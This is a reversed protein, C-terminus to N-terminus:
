FMSASLALKKPRVTTSPSSVSIRCKSGIALTTASYALPLALASVLPKTTFQYSLAVSICACINLIMLAVCFAARADLAICSCARAIRSALRAFSVAAKSLAVRACLAATVRYLWACVSVNNGHSRLAYLAVCIICIKSSMISSHAIPENTPKIMM